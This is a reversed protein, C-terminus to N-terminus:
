KNLFYDFPDPIWEMRSDELNAGQSFYAIMEKPISATAVPNGDIELGMLAAPKLKKEPDRDARLVVYCRQEIRRIDNLIQDPIEFNHVRLQDGLYFFDHIDLTPWDIKRYKEWQTETFRNKLLTAPTGSYIGNEDLPKTAVALAGLISGDGISAGSLVVSKTSILVNNGITICGRASSVPPNTLSAHSQVVESAVHPFANLTLNFLSNNDHEGGLMIECDSFESFDGVKLLINGGYNKYSKIRQMAGISGRGIYICDDDILLKVGVSGFITLFKHSPPCNLNYKVKRELRQGWIAM